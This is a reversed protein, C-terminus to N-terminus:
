DPDPTTDKVTVTLDPVSIGNYDPDDSTVAFSVAVTEDNTDADAVGRVFEIRALNWDDDDSRKIVARGTRGTSVAGTDASTATITLDARPRSDLKVFYWESGGENVEVAPEAIIWVGNPDKATAGGWITVGATDNDAITVTATDKGDGAKAWGTESTAITVTFTEDDEDYGDDVVPVYLYVHDLGKYVYPSSKVPGVDDATATSDGDFGLTVTFPLGDEPAAESLTIKLRCCLGDNSPVKADEPVTLTPTISFTKDSQQPEPEPEPEPLTISGWTRQGKGAANKGRVFVRYTAGSELNRFTVSTKDAKPRRTKGKGGDEPKLHVIYSKPAGGSEPAQWTATVSDTSAELLLSAVPGPPQPGEAAAPQPSLAFLGALLALTAVLLAPAFLRRPTPEPTTIRTTSM